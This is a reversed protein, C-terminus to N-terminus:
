SAVRFTTEDYDISYLPIDLGLICIKNQFPLYYALVGNYLSCHLKTDQMYPATGHSSSMCTTYLIDTLILLRLHCTFCNIYM